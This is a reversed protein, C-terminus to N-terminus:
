GVSSIPSPAARRLKWDLLYLLDPLALMGVVIYSEIEAAVTFGALAFLSIVAFPFEWEWALLMMLVAVLLFTLGIWERVRIARLSELPEGAVLALFVATVLLTLVRASWRVVSFVPPQMSDHHVIPVSRVIPATVEGHSRDLGAGPM